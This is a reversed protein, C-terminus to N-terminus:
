DDDKQVLRASNPMIREDARTESGEGRRSWITACDSLKAASQSPMGTLSAKANGVLGFTTYNGQIMLPISFAHHRNLTARLFLRHRLIDRRGTQAQFKCVCVSSSCPLESRSELRTMEFPRHQRSGKRDVPRATYGTLGSMRLTSCVDQLLAARSDSITVGFGAEPQAAMGRRSVPQLLVPVRTEQRRTGLGSRHSLVRLNSM